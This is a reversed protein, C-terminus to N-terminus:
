QPKKDGRTGGKTEGKMLAVIKSPPFVFGAIALVCIFFVLLLVALAM